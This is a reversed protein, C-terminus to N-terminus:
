FTIISYKALDSISESFLNRESLSFVMPKHTVIPESIYFNDCDQAFFIPAMLDYQGSRVLKEARGLAVFHLKM